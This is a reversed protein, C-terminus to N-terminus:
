VRSSSPCATGSLMLVGLVLMELVSLSFGEHGSFGRVWLVVDGAGLVQRPALAAQLDGARDVALGGLGDDVRQRVDARCKAVVDCGEAEPVDVGAGAQVRAATLEDRNAHERRQAAALRLQPDVDSGGEVHPQGTLLDDLRDQM